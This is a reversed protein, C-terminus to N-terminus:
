SSLKIELYLRMRLYQTRPSECLFEPTPCLKGWLLYWRVGPDGIEPSWVQVEQWVLPLTLNSIFHVIFTICKFWGSVMGGGSGLGQFFQRGLFQDRTGFLNPIVRRVWSFYWTGRKLSIGWLLRTDLWSHPFKHLSSAHDSLLFYCCVKVIIAYLFWM